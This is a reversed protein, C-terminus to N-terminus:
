DEVPQNPTDLLLQYFALDRWTGFKYGAEVITGVHRFGFREHLQRSAINTADIGSILAHLEHQRAREILEALLKATGHELLRYNSM